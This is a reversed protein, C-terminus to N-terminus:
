ESNAAKRQNFEFRLESTAARLAKVRKKEKSSIMEDLEVFKIFEPNEKLLRTRMEERQHELEMKELAAEKAEKYHGLIIKDITVYVWLEFASDLWAAFKLTLNEM